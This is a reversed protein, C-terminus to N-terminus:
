RRRGRGGSGGARAPATLTPNTARAPMASTIPATAGGSLRRGAFTGRVLAPDFLVPMNVPNMGVGVLVTGRGPAIQADIASPQIMGNRVDFHLERLVVPSAAGGTRIECTWAGDLSTGARPRRGSGEVALPVDLVVEVLQTVITEDGDEHVTDGVLVRNRAVQEAKVFMPSAYGRWEGAGVRCRTAADNPRERAHRTDVFSVHLKGERDHGAFAAGYFSDLRLARQEEHLPRDGDMGHWAYYAFVPFTGRYLETRADTADDVITMAVDVPQDARISAAPIRPTGCEGNLYFLGPSHERFSGCTVSALTRGGQELSLVFPVQRDILVTKLVLMTTGDDADNELRFGLGDAFSLSPRAQAQASAPATMFFSTLLCLRALARGPAAAPYM